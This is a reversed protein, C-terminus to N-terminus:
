RKRQSKALYDLRRFWVVFSWALSSNSTTNRKKNSIDFPFLCATQSGLSTSVREKVALTWRRSEEDRRSLFSMGDQRHCSVCSPGCCGWRKMSTETRLIAHCNGAEM